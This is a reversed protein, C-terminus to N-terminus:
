PEVQHTPLKVKPRKLTENIVVNVCIFKRLM